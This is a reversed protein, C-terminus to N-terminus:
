PSIAKKFIPSVTDNPQLQLKWREFLILIWYCPVETLPHGYVYLTWATQYVAAIAVSFVIIDCLVANHSIIVLPPPPPCECIHGTCTVVARKQRLGHRLGGGGERTTCTGLVGRKQNHGNKRLGMKKTSQWIYVEGISWTSVLFYLYNIFLSGLVGKQLM